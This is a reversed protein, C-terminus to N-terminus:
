AARSRRDERSAPPSIPTRLMTDMLGDLMKAREDTLPVQRLKAILNLMRPDAEDDEGPEVVVHGALKMLRMYDLGLAEAVLAISEPNPTSGMMWRSVVSPQSGIARSLDSLSWDKRAMGDLLENRLPDNVWKSSQEGRLKRYKRRRVPQVSM